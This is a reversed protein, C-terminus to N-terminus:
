TFLVCCQGHSEFHIGLMSIIHFSWCRDDVDLIVNQRKYVFYGALVALVIAVCGGVTAGIIIGLTNGSESVSSPASIPPFSSFSITQTTIGSVTMDLGQGRMAGQMCIRETIHWHHAVIGLYAAM